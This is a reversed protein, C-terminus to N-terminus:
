MIDSNTSCDSSNRKGISIWKYLTVKKINRLIDSM